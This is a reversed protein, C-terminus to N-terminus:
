EKSHGRKYPSTSPKLQQKPGFKLMDIEWIYYVVFYKIWSLGAKVNAAYKEGV